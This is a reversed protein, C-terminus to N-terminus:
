LVEELDEVAKLIDIASDKVQEVPTEKEEPKKTLNFKNSEKEDFDEHEDADAGFADEMASSDEANVFVPEEPINFDDIDDGSSKVVPAASVSFMDEIIDKGPGKGDQREAFAAFGSKGSM